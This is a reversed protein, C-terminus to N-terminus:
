RRGRRAAPLAADPSSTIAQGPWSILRFPWSFSSGRAPRAEGDPACPPGCVGLRWLSPAAVLRGWAGLEARSCGSAEHSARLLGHLNARAQQQRVYAAKGMGACRARNDRVHTM